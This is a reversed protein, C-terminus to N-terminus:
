SARPKLGVLSIRIMRWPFGQVLESWWWGIKRSAPSAQASSSRMVALPCLAVMWNSVHVATGSPALSRSVDRRMSSRCLLPTPGDPKSGCPRRMALASGTARFHISRRPRAPAINDREGTIPTNSMPPHHHLLEQESLTEPSRGQGFLRDWLDVTVMAVRVLVEYCSGNKM